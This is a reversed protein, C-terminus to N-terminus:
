APLRRPPEDAEAPLLWFATGDYWFLGLQRAARAWAVAEDRGLAAAVCRERYSGDPAVGDVRVFARGEGALREALTRTRRRNRGDEAAAEGPTQAEEAHEGEPNEATFVAFREGLGLGALAARTRADVPRRLDVRPGAPAGAADPFFELVTNPYAAYADHADTGDAPQPQDTV